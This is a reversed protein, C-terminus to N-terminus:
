SLASHWWSHSLSEGADTRTRPQREEERMARENILEGTDTRTEIVKGAVYDFRRECEIPKYTCRSRVENSLRRFSAELEDIESKAHKQQAKMDAEKEDREALKHAAEDARDAVEDPTLQVRLSTTFKDIKPQPKKQM